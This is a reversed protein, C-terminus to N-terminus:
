LCIEKSRQILSEISGFYLPQSAKQLMEMCVAFDNERVISVRVGRVLAVAIYNIFSFRKVKLEERLQPPEACFITDWVRMTDNM